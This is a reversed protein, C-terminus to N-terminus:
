KILWGNEVRVWEDVVTPHPDDASYIVIKGSDTTQELQSMPGTSIVDGQRIGDTCVTLMTGEPYPALDYSVINNLSDPTDTYQLWLFHGVVSVGLGADTTQNTITPTPGNPAGITFTTCAVGEASQAPISALFVALVTVATVFITKRMQNEKNPM